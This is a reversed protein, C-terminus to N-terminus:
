FNGGLVTLFVNNSANVSTKVAAQLIDGSNLFFFYQGDNDVPLGPWYTPSLLNVSPTVGDFGSLTAVNAAAINVNAGSRNVQLMVVRAASDTNTVTVSVIKTGNTNGTICTVYGVGTSNAITGFAITSNALFVPATAM